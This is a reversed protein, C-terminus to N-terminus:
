CLYWQADGRTAVGTTTISLVGTGDNVANIGASGGTITSGNMDTTVSTSNAIFQVSDTGTAPGSCTWVGGSDICNGAFVAGGGSVSLAVGLAIASVSSAGVAVGLSPSLSVAQGAIKTLRGGRLLIPTWLPVVTRASLITISNRNTHNESM